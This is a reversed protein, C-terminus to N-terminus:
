ILTLTQKNVWSGSIRAEIIMDGSLTAKMRWSGDTTENGVLYIYKGFLLPQGDVYISGSDVFTILNNPIYNFTNIGKLNVNMAVPTFGSVGYNIVQMIYDNGSSETRFTCNDFTISKTTVGAIKDYNLLVARAIAVKSTTNKVYSKYPFDGGLQLTVWNGTNEMYDIQINSNAGSSITADIENVMKRGKLNLTGIQHIVACTGQNKGRNNYVEDFEITSTTGITAQGPIQSINAVQYTPHNNNVIIKNVKFHMIGSRPSLAHGVNNVIIENAEFYGDCGTLLATSGTEGNPMGPIGTEIRGVKADIKGYLNSLM